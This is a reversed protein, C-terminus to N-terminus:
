SLHSGEAGQPFYFPSVFLESLLPCSHANIPSIYTIYRGIPSNHDGGAIYNSIFSLCQATLKYRCGPDTCWSSPLQLDSFLSFCKGSWEQVQSLLSLLLQPPKSSKGTLHAALGQGWGFSPLSILIALAAKEPANEFIRERRPLWGAEQRQLSITLPLLQRFLHVPCSGALHHISSSRLKHLSSTSFRKDTSQLFIRQHCFPRKRQLAWRWSPWSSTSHLTTSINYYRHNSLIGVLM